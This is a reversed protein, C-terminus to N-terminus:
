EETRDVSGLDFGPVCSQLTKQLQEWSRFYYTAGTSVYKAQGRWESRGNGLAELWVRLTVLHSGTAPRNNDM